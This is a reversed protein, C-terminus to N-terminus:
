ATRLLFWEYTTAGTKFVGLECIYQATTLITNILAGNNIPRINASASTVAAMQTNTRRFTFRLGETIISAAPLTIFIGTTNPTAISYSNFYPLFISSTATILPAETGDINDVVIAWVSAQTAIVKLITNRGDLTISTATASSNSGMRRFTDPTTANITYANSASTKIFTIEIGYMDPSIGPLTVAGNSTTGLIYVRSLPFSLNNTSGSLESYGNLKWVNNNLYVDDWFNVNNIMDVTGGLSISGISDVTTTASEIRTVNTGADYSVNTLTGQIANVDSQLSSIDNTNLSVQYALNDFGAVRDNPIGNVNFIPNTQFDFV